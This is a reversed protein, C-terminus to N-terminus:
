TIVGLSSKLSEIKKVMSQGVGILINHHNECLLWEFKKSIIYYEFSYMSGLIDVIAAINGEYLWFNGHRKTRQWDEAVFWVNEKSAVLKNLFAPAYNLQISCKPEKFSNWWWSYNIGKKGLTTFKDLIAVLIIEYKYPDISRFDESSFSLAKLVKELDVRFNRHEAM